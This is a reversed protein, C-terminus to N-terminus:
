VGQKEVIREYNRMVEDVLTAWPIPITDRATDGIRSLRRPDALAQEVVRALDASDDRCLYGNFGDRMGESASSGAVVVSPTGMAAAERVVLGSTDYLSPFLFLSAARYLANLTVGDCIHGTFLM